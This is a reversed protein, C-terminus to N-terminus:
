NELWVLPDIRGEQVPLTGKLFRITNWATRIQGLAERLTMLLRITQKGCRDAQLGTVVVQLHEAGVPMVQAGSHIMGSLEVGGHPRITPALFAMSEALTKDVPPLEVVLTASSSEVSVLLSAVEVAMQLADRQINTPVAMRYTIVPAPRDNQHHTHFM